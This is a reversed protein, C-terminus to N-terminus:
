AAPRVPRRAPSASAAASRAAPRPADARHDADRMFSDAAVARPAAVHRRGRGPRRRCRRGTRRRLRTSPQSPQAQREVAHAPVAAQADAQGAADAAALARHGRHQDAQPAASTSVSAMARASVAGPPAAIGASRARTRRRRDDAGVARQVAGCARAPRRRGAASRRSSAMRCGIIPASACRWAPAAPLPAPPTRRAAAPRTSGSARLADLAHQHDVAALSVCTSRTIRAGAPRASCTRARSRAAPWARARAAGDGVRHDEVVADREVRECACTRRQPPVPHPRVALGRRRRQSVITPRRSAVARRRIAQVLFGAKTRYSYGNLSLMRVISRSSCRNSRSPWSIGRSAATSWWKASAVINSIM